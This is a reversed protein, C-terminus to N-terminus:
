VWPPRLACRARRPPRPARSPRAAAGALDQEGAHVAVAGLAAEVELQRARHAVRHRHRHDGGAADARELVQGVADADAAGVRHQRGADEVVALEGDGCALRKRAPARCRSAATLPSQISATAHFASPGPAPSRAPRPRPRPASAPTSSDRLARACPRSRRPPRSTASAGPATAALALGGPVHLLHTSIRRSQSASARAAAPALRDAADGAVGPRRRQKKLRSSPRRGLAAPDGGVRHERLGPLTARHSLAVDERPELGRDGRAAAGVGRGGVHGRQLAFPSSAIRLFTPSSAVSATIAALPPSRAAITCSVASRQNWQRTISAIARAHRHGLHERLELPALAREPMSSFSSWASRLRAILSQM